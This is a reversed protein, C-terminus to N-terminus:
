GPRRTAQRQDHRLPAHMVSNIWFRQEGSRILNAVHTNVERLLPLHFEVDKANLMYPSKM